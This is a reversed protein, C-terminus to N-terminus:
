IDKKRSIDTSNIKRIAAFISNLLIYKQPIKITDFMFTYFIKFKNTGEILGCDWCFGSPAVEGKNNPFEFIDKIINDDVDLFKDDKHFTIHINIQGSTEDVLEIQIFANLYQGQEIIM